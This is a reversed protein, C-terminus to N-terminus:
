KSMDDLFDDSAITVLFNCFVHIDCVWRCDGLDSKSPIGLDM